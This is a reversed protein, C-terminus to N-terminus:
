AAGMLRCFDEYADMRIIQWRPSNRLSPRNREISVLAAHVNFADALDQASDYRANTASQATM